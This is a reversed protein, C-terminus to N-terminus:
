EEVFKIKGKGVNRVKLKVHETNNPLFTGTRNPSSFSECEDLRAQMEAIKAEYEDRMQRVILLPIFEETKYYGLWRCPVDLLCIEANIRPEPWLASTHLTDTTM